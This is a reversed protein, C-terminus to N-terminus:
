PVRVGMDVRRHNGIPHGQMKLRRFGNRGKLDFRPPFTKMTFQQPVARQKGTRVM